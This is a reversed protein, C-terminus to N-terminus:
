RRLEALLKTVDEKPITCVFVVKDEGINQYSHPINPPIYVAHGKKVDYAQDGIKIRLSGSLMYEEHEWPHTHEPIHCGPDIEFIRMMYTPADDKGILVKYRVGKLGEVESYQTEEEHIVKPKQM